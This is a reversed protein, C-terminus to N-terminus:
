KPPNALLYPLGNNINANEGWISPDFGAPLGSQLQETTLGAIGPDNAPTGAGQSPNTIGSSDMDWYTDGLSGASSQDVGILGGVYTSGSVRGFSYSSTISGGNYAVLGGAYFGGIVKVNAYSNSITGSNGGALGAVDLIASRKGEGVTVSGIAFSQAISGENGGVLGGGTGKVTTRISVGTNCESILATNNGVLGGAIALSTSSIKGTARSRIVTGDNDGVLIGVASATQIHHNPKGIKINANTVGIDSITGSSLAFLGIIDGNTEVPVYISLNSIKNGLGEFSGTLYYQIPSQSYTGDNAANYGSALAYNGEANKKIAAALSAISNVLTYNTGNIALKGTLKKFTVHGKGFFALEGGTGGDNTLISLGSKGGATVPATVSLSQYSDLMLMNAPWGFKATIDINNAQVGSGTTTVTVSGSALLAELDGVNLV